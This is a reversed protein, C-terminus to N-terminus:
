KSKGDLFHYLPPCQHLEHNRSCLLKWNHFHSLNDMHSSSVTFYSTCCCSPVELHSCLYLFSSTSIRGFTSLEWNQQHQSYGMKTKTGGEWSLPLPVLLSGPFTHPKGAEWYGLFCPNCIWEKVGGFLIKTSTPLHFLVSPKLEQNLDLLKLGLWSLLIRCGGNFSSTPGVNGWLNKINHTLEWGM